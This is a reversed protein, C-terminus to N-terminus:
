NGITPFHRTQRNYYRNVNANVPNTQTPPMPFYHSAGAGPRNASRPSESAVQLRAPAAGRAQASANQGARPGGIRGSGIGGNIQQAAFLYLAANGASMPQQTQMLYPNLFPNAYPNMYPNANMMGMGAAGPNLATASPSVYGGNAGGSATGPQIGSLQAKAPVPALGLGLALALLLAGSRRRM